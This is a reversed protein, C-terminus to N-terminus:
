CSDAPLRQSRRALLLLYSATMKTEGPARHIGGSGGLLRTNTANAIADVSLPTINDQIIKIVERNM